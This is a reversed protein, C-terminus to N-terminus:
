ENTVIEVRPQTGLGTRTCLPTQFLPEGIRFSVGENVACLEHECM